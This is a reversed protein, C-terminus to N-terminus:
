RPMRRQKYVQCWCDWTLSQLIELLPDIEVELLFMTAWAYAGSLMSTLRQMEQQAAALEQRLAVHTAALRQNESLLSQIEMHQSQIKQELMAPMPGGSMGASGGMSSRGQGYPSHRGNQAGSRSNLSMMRNRSGMGTDEPLRGQPWCLWLREFDWLGIWLMCSFCFNFEMTDVKRLLGFDVGSPLLGRAREENLHWLHLV